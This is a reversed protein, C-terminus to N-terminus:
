VIDPSTTQGTAVVRAFRADGAPVTIEITAFETFGDDDTTMAFHLMGTEDVFLPPYSPMAGGGSGWVQRGSAFNGDRDFAFLYGLQTAHFIRQRGPDYFSAFKAASTAQNRLRSIVAPAYGNSAAFKPFGTGGSDPFIAFVNGAGDAELAAPRNDFGSDPITTWTAGGDTSRDIIEHTAGTQTQGSRFLGNPTWVIKQNHSQFNDGRLATSHWTFDAPYQASATAGSCALMAPLLARVRFLRSVGIKWALAPRSSRLLNMGHLSTLDPPCQLGRVAAFDDGELVPM